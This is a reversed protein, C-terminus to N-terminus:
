MSKVPVSKMMELLHVNCCLQGDRGSFVDTEFSLAAGELVM